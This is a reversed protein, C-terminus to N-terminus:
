ASRQRQWTARALMVSTVLLVPASTTGPLWRGFYISGALHGIGNFFMIASLV